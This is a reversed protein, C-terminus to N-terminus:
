IMFCHFLFDLKIQLFHCRVVKFGTNKKELIFNEEDLILPLSLNVKIKGNKFLDVFINQLQYRFFCPM